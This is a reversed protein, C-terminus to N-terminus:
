DEDVLRAFQALTSGFFDSIHDRDIIILNPHNKVLAKKEAVKKNTLKVLICKVKKSELQKLASSALGAWSHV